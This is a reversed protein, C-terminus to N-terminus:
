RKPSKEFVSLTEFAAVKLALDGALVYHKFLNGSSSSKKLSKIKRDYSELEDRLSRYDESPTKLKKLKERDLRVVM